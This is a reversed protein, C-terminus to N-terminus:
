TDKENNASDRFQDLFDKGKLNDPECDHLGPFSRQRLAEYIAVAVANSLNLSRVHDSSPIRFVRDLNNALLTRDIGTSERGFVLFVPKTDNAFNYTDYRKQGYRSYFLCNAGPNGELFAVWSPYTRYNLDKLYDLGSRRLHYDDLVFGLPEILHLTANTAVATRMINGTNQPIEPEILVINIM